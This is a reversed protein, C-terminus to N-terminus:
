VLVKVRDALISLFCLCNNGITLGDIGWSLNEGEKARQLKRKITKFYSSISMEDAYKEAFTEASAKKTADVNVNELNQLFRIM